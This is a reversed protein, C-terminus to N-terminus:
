GPAVRRACSASAALETGLRRRWTPGAPTDVLEIGEAALEDRIRDSTACDKAARAAEREAVLADIRPDSGSEDADPAEADALGFGSPATPTPSSRGCPRGPRPGPRPRRGVGRGPGAPANLDDALASWFRRLHPTSGRRTPSAAPTARGRRRPRRLRRHATAAAEIAEWRSPRSSATTPRSSSTASRWRTSARARGALRRRARPGEVELDERRRPRPVRQADLHQVWPHVDLACESQAVENTHHVRIHDVGGTHIDFSRRGPVEHGDGLVRHALRPLRPGVALGVGAPAARRAAHAELARLRGPPAQGRRARGPRQDGARRPRPRRVRRLAPLDVVDFYVGDDIVYTHGQEELTRSWPSRSPSTTPPAPCSTPSSAASGAATTPGSSRTSRRSRPRRRAPARRGGGGDQRRGRRRRVRPPRRRHHQHRLHGRLGAALLVRRLLDPFLQSRM